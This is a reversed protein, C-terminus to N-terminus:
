REHNVEGLRAAPLRVRFIAGPDSHVYSVVGGHDGVIKAVLALGLGSGKNKSSVFPQFLHDIMEESVGTGNDAIEVAIPLEQRERTNGVSMRLGHQFHTSITLQGGDHPAAEAANKVLNLFAQVLGDRDGLVPPLSPDYKEVIRLHRGFGAAAIRRVHELIQHINVPSRDVASTETFAEMRDVLACVRDSEDCILDVLSKDEEAVYPALLQAAGKIGSLPNKVEHALTQALAAVSRSSGRKALQQDLNRALSCPHLVVLVHDPCEAISTLHGDVSVTHGKALALEIGFESISNVNTQVQEVLHLLTTHPACLNSLKQDELLNWGMSFLQEAAPNAFVIRSRADVVLVASPLSVLVLDRFSPKDKRGEEVIVANM